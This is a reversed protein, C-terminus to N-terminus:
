RIERLALKACLDFDYWTIPHPSRAAERVDSVADLMEAIRPKLQQVLRPDVGHTKVLRKTAKAEGWRVLRETKKAEGWRVQSNGM